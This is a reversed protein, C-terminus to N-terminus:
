ARAVSSAASRADRCGGDAVEDRDYRDHEARDEEVLLHVDPDQTPECDHEDTDCQGPDGPSSSMGFGLLDVLGLGARSRHVATM